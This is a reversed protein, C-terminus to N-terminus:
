ISSGTLIRCIQGQNAGFIGAETNIQLMGFNKETIDLYGLFDKWYKVPFEGDYKRVLAVGEDRTIHGDRVEYAADSTTRCIGFKMYAMWFHFGDLKDDISGYKQYTGESRDDNATFGTNEAASTIIGNPYGIKMIHGGVCIM